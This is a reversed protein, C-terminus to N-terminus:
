AKKKALFKYTDKALVYSLAAAATTLGTFYWLGHLYPHDLYNWVPAGLSVAVTALQVATNVKSIFTPALQATAHTADFYRSLTRPPPLSQYRIVFGALILLLDRSVIMGTLWLPLLNTYTLSVVLCGMLIKDSMPDLFSGFRSAQGPWTRAIWGDLMDTVGAIVLLGMGLPYDGCVIVYGLYPSLVVRGMSLVNPITFVNEREIISEVKERVEKVKERKEKINEKLDDRFKVKLHHIEDKKEKWVKKKEEIANQLLEASRATKLEFDTKVKIDSSKRLWGAVVEPRRVVTSRCLTRAISLTLM